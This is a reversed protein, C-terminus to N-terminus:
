SKGRRLIELARPFDYALVAREFRRWEDGLGAQLLEVSERVLQQVAVDGEALLAEARALVTAVAQPDPAPGESALEPLSRIATVLAAQAAAVRNLSSEIALAGHAERIAVELEAAPGQVGTAGIMGAVGKLSHALRRVEQMDTGDALAVRIREPDGAHGEAYKRLLRLYNPIRGRLNKLGYAVDLGPVQELRARMDGASVPGDSPAPAALAAAAPLVEARDVGTRAARGEGAAPRPLWQLLKAYLVAPDVPKPMHDNMGADLCRQRDEGFANATMAVIPLALHGGRRIAETAELGDMVPMQVDMLVLDYASRDVKEVAQAGNDAVEVELGVGELLSLAVEQNIPSDEVLLVRAGGYERLLTAEGPLEGIAASESSTERSLTTRIAEYLSSQSVPKALLGAAASDRALEKQAPDDGITLVICRPPTKLPLRAVRSATEFGDIGPMGADILLLDYPDGSRQARQVEILAAAGSDVLEARLELASLMAAIAHRTAGLDDVVLVHLGPLPRRPRPKRTGKGFRLRLWFDSGRGPESDVGAQGGMLRALHSTIALGLGTGGFRRTTSGDAQEFPAFLRERSAPDIGIGTDIVEFRLTVWDDGEEETRARLLIMGRETFKVANSLYNVLMQGLRTADGRLREPVKVVDIVLELGKQHAKDAVLACAKHVVDDLAFSVEDLTLKGAEIKSLDLIDNIISLLHAAADSVKHLRLQAEAGEVSRRLLHTLGIIANMPTRIEHSMNALFASKARSAADSQEKAIQLEASRQVMELNAEELERTREAVRQELQDRYRALEEDMRKRETIDQQISLYHTIQGNAQVIPSVRAFEVMLTGDRRRNIFEGEWSRGARLAAWLAEYSAAPTMGSKLFGTQRGVIEEVPYGCGDVFARNVYEIIGKTNTIIVSAPSQEVALSLKVLQEAARRKETTDRWVGALYRHGRIDVARYSLEADRASGDARRHRTEITVSGQQALIERIRGGIEEASWETEIDPVTLQAFEERSYGLGQCAADNFELFRLSEPDLLVIGDAAQSVIAGYIEERERLDAEGRRRDTIDHAVGFIGVVRGNVDHLPGKTTRMTRLGNATTVTEEWSSIADAQMVAADDRRFCAAEEAPFLEHDHAGLLEERPRNLLRTLERNVFIYRGEEDKAFITDTSGDAITDLLRLERLQSRAADEGPQAAERRRFVLVASAGVSLLAFGAALAIWRVQGRTAERIEEEDIKVVLLWDTGPVRRGVGVVPEGRYDRTEVATGLSAANGAVIVAFVDDRTLPIRETLPLTARNRLPSIFVLEGGEQRFLLTEASRAPVPWANLYDLLYRSPDAQLVVALRGGEHTAKLPAVFDIHPPDGLRLPDDRYFPTHVAQNEAFARRLADRLVPSIALADGAALVERGTEDVLAVRAYRDVSRMMGLDALVAARGADEGRRRWQELHEVLSVNGAMVRADARREELWLSLQGVKMDAIAELRRFEENRREGLTYAASGWALVVIGLALLVFPLMRTRLGEGAFVGFAAPVPGKGRVMRHLLGWLLTATVAVFAWGKLMSALAITDPSSFLLTLLSESFLIWGAALVAYIVVIRAIRVNM